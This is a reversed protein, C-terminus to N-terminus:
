IVKYFRNLNFFYLQASLIRKEYIRSLAEAYATVQMRYQEAAADLTTDTVRDTKFDLVTIGESEIIACDVVGQLLIQEGLLGPNYKAADDLISFKFERIVNKSKRLKMGIDSDFFAWIKAPDM